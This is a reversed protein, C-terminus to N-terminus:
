MGNASFSGATATCIFILKNITEGTNNNANQYAANTNQQIMALEEPTENRGWCSRAIRRSVDAIQNNGVSNQGASFDISNFVRRQNAAMGREQQILDNCVEAAIKEIAVLMTATVSNADGENSLASKQEEWTSKADGSPVGTGLCSVLNDLTRNSRVIGATRTDAIPVIEGNGGPADQGGLTSSGNDGGFTNGSSGRYGSCNNYLSLSLLAVLLILFKKHLLFRIM